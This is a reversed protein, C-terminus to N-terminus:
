LIFGGHPPMGAGNGGDPRRNPPDQRQGAQDDVPGDDDVAEQRPRSLSKEM